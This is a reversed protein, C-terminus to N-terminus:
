LYDVDKGSSSLTKTEVVDENHTFRIYGIGSGNSLTSTKSKNPRRVRISMRRRQTFWNLPSRRAYLIQNLRDLWSLLKDPFENKIGSSTVQVIKPSNHRFRLTVDYVFSYHVDGSLIVFNPPTKAHRFINLMVSATGRHAMWNEADVMLAQGFFTFIKQVSEILKVGFVPAASVMIISPENIMEQQMESLSEWDMLGSPKTASSESRWRQTRTDLVVTKPSTDLTYHWNDWDLMIDILEDHHEVKSSTFFYPVKEEITDFKHPANGWGQCLWYSVLANGIIRKSFPHGYAAEEWDRTLNWDDTVDHDDFIMYVPIHALGRRVDALGQIFTETAAKEDNFREEYEKLPTTEPLTVFKWLEPSWVLLYMAMMESLTVLHNRANVSTFIPKRKAAIFNEYLQKNGPTKPLLQEREYFSLSHTILEQTTNAVAGEWSEEYLGLLKMVQHIASLVPGAVDDTYVQDGSMMLYAPRSRKETLCKNLEHSVRVLGDKSAHHPKRCSGHLLDVVENHIEFSPLSQGEYTLNPICDLLSQTDKETAFEIDYYISTATPLPASTNLTILKVFASQGIAVSHVKQEKCGYPTSGKEDDKYLSLTCQCDETTVLWICVQEPTVKRVIPGAIILPLAKNNM